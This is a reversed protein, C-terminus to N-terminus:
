KDDKTVDRTQLSRFSRGSDKFSPSGQPATPQVATWCVAGCIDGRVGAIHIATV